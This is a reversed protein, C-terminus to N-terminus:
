VDEPWEDIFQGQPNRMVENGDELFEITHGNQIAKGVVRKGDHKDFVVGGAELAELESTEPMNQYTPKPM